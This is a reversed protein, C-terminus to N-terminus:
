VRYIVTCIYVMYSLLLLAIYIIYASVPVHIDKGKKQITLKDHVTNPSTLLDYLSENYVEVM